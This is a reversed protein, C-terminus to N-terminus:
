AYGTGAVPPADDGDDPFSPVGTRKSTPAERPAKEIVLMSDYYHMSFASRTFDTVNFSQPDRSHWANLQDVLLKSYEIFSYPSRFAGGYERWYSTHVDECLYVGHPHIAPFLEEFTVIQQVMGHGGDDILVDIGGLQSRLRRLFARDSQDGIVIEHGAAALQACRPNKDMGVIRADPGFYERWMQLSGGHFVGIELVTCRQGRFRQFHRHYVEFYHLWKDILRGRNSEFYRRLPNDDATANM